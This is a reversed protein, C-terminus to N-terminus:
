FIIMNFSNRYKRKIEENLKARAFKPLIEIVLGSKLSISGVISNTRIYDGFYTFVKVSKGSKSKYDIKLLLDRDKYSIIKKEIDREKSIYIKDHEVVTLTNNM